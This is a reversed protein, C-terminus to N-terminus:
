RKKNYRLVESLREDKIILIDFEKSPKRNTLSKEIWKELTENDATLKSFDFIIGGCQDAGEHMIQKFGKRLHRDVSSFSAKDPTKLDWQLGKWCYDARNQKYQEDLSRQLVIDGGLTKRLWNAIREEGKKDQYGDEKTITGKQPTAERLYEATVRELLSKRSSAEDIRLQIEKATNTDYFKKSWVDQKRGDGPDYVVTCRCDRHRQFVEKPVGPYQWEGAWTRCFKCGTGNLIRYVKPRLGMQGHLEVNAKITDDVVNQAFNELYPGEVAYRLDDFAERKSANKAIGAVRRSRYGVEAPKIGLGAKKNLFSQVDTCVAQVREHVSKYTPLMIDKLTKYDLDGAEFMEATLVKDFAKSLASAVCESYEYADEYTAAGRSVKELISAIDEDSDLNKRFYEFISDLVEKITKEDM